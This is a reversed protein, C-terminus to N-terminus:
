MNMPMSQVAGGDVNEFVPGHQHLELEGVLGGDHGSRISLWSLVWDAPTANVALVLSGEDPPLRM